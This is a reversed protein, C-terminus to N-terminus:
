GNVQQYLRKETESMQSGSQHFVDMEVKVNGQGDNNSMDFALIFYEKMAPDQLQANIDTLLQSYNQQLYGRSYQANESLGYVIIVYHHGFDNYSHQHSIYGDMCEQKSRSEYAMMEEIISLRTYMSEAVLLKVQDLPITDNANHRRKTTGNLLKQFTTAYAQLKKVLDAQAQKAEPQALYQPDTMNALRTEVKTLLGINVLQQQVAIAREFFAASGLYQQALAYESEFDDFAVLTQLHYDLFSLLDSPTQLLKIIKYFSNLSLLQLVRSEDDLDLVCEEQFFRSGFDHEIQFSEDKHTFIISTLGLYHIKDQSEDSPLELKASIQQYRKNIQTAVQQRIEALVRKEVNTSEVELSEHHVLVYLKQNGIQFAYDFKGAGVLPDNNNLYVSLFTRHFM